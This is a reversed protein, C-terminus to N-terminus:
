RSVLVPEPQFAIVAKAFKKHRALKKGKRQKRHKVRVRLM